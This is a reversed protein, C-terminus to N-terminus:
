TVFKSYNTVMTSSSLSLSIVPETHSEVFEPVSKHDLM